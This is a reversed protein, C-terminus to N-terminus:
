LFTCFFANLSFEVKRVEETYDSARWVGQTRRGIDDLALSDM